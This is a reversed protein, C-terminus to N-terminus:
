AEVEGAQPEPITACNEYHSCPLTDLWCIESDSCDGNKIGFLRCSEHALRLSEASRQDGALAVDEAQPAPPIDDSTMFARITPSTM